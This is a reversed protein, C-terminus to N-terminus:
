VGQQIDRCHSVFMGAVSHFLMCTHVCDNYVQLLIIQHRKAVPSHLEFQNYLVDCGGGFKAGHSGCLASTDEEEGETKALTDGDGSEEEGLGDVNQVCVLRFSGIDLSHLPTYVEALAANPLSATAEGRVQFVCAGAIM